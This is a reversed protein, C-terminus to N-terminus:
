PGLKINMPSWIHEIETKADKLEAKLCMIDSKLKTKESSIQTQSQEVDNKVIQTNSIDDEIDRLKNSIYNVTTKKFFFYKRFLVSWISNGWNLIKEEEKIKVFHSINKLILFAM